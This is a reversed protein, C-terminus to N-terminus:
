QNWQQDVGAARKKATYAFLGCIATCLFATGFVSVAVVRGTAAHRNMLASAITVGGWLGISMGTLVGRFVTKSRSGYPIVLLSLLVMSVQPGGNRPLYYAPFCGLAFVGVITYIVKMAKSRRKRKSGPRAM